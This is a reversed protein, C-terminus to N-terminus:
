SAIWARWSTYYAFGQEWIANSQRVVLVQYQADGSINQIVDEIPDLLVCDLEM